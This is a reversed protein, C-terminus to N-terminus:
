RSETAEGALGSPKRKRAAKVAAKRLIAVVRENGVTRKAWDLATRGYVDKAHLRAGAYLLTHVIETRGQKAAVMLTTRGSIDSANPDAGADLLDEVTDTAAHKDLHALKLMNLLKKGLRAADRVSMRRPLKPLLPAIVAKDYSQPPQQKEGKGRLVTREAELVATM